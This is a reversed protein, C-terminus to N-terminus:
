EWDTSVHQSLQPHELHQLRRQLNANQRWLLICSIGLLIAVASILWLLLRPQSPTTSSVQATEPSPTIPVPFKLPSANDRFRFVPVYSGRPIEFVLPETSGDGAFYAEVRKRLETASVRVINDQSTDYSRQRAFVTEGIEQEHLDTRGEKISQNGVYLLFERLRAARKLAPSAAVREIVSWCASPDLIGAPQQIDTSM